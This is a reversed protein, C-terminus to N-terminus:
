VAWEPVIKEEEIKAAEVMYHSLMAMDMICDICVGEVYITADKKCISCKCVAKGSITQGLM